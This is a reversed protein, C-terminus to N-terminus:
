LIIVVKHLALFKTPSERLHCLSRTQHRPAQSFTFSATTCPFFRRSKIESLYVAQHIGMVNSNLPSFRYYRGRHFRTYRGLARRGVGFDFKNIGDRGVVVSSGFGLFV